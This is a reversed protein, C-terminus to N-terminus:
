GQEGTTRGTLAERLLFTAGVVSIFSVSQDKLENPQSSLQLWPNHEELVHRNETLRATPLVKLQHSM